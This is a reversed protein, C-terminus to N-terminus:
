TESWVYFIDVDVAAIGNFSSAGAITYAGMRPFAVWDTLDLEPLRSGEVVVDLGDCTPGFLTSSYLPTKPKQKALQLGRPVVTAHDYPICNFSGYLGDTIWYNIEKEGQENIVDRRGFVSTMLTAAASAFYRGPEAIVSVSETDPFCEALANNISDEMQLFAADKAYGDPFGGGIDLIEMAFGQAIGQQFAVQALNIANVFTSPDEAASGVHFSVGVINLNLTRALTFLEAVHEMDAGYKNSLQCRAKSDDVKIRLVLRCEPYFKHMKKLESVSDFTTLTIGTSKMYHIDRPRKCANACIIRDPDVGLSLVLRAEFDSACDFCAGLSSLLSIMAPNPNCKVAYFPQVGPFSRQWSQYLKWVISLDFVYFTDELGFKRIMGKAFEDVCSASSSQISQVDYLGKLAMFDLQRETFSKGRTILKLGNIEFEDDSAESSYLTEANMSSSESNYESFAGFRGFVVRTGSSCKQISLGHCAYNKIPGYNEHTLGVNMDKGVTAAVCMNEPEFIKVVLNMIRDLKLARSHFGSIEVSAFSCEEEPTVHITIFGEGLLGNMSYGCPWFLTDDIDAGPLLDIIGSKKTADAADYSNSHKVFNAASERSLGTMCVELSMSNIEPPESGAVFIHWQLGKCHDGLVYSNGSKGLEQFSDRLITVEEKFSRHQAPQFGCACSKLMDLLVATPM